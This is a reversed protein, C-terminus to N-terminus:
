TAPAVQAIDARAGHEDPSALGQLFATVFVHEIAMLMMLVMSSCCLYLVVIAVTTSAAGAHHFFRRATTNPPPESADAVTPELTATAFYPWLIFVCFAAAALAAALGILAYERILIWALLAGVSFLGLGSFAIRQGFHVGLAGVGVVILLLVAVVYWGAIETVSATRFWGVLRSAPHVRLIAAGGHYYESAFITLAAILNAHALHNAILQMSGGVLGRYSKLWLTAGVLKLLGTSPNGNKVQALRQDIARVKYFYRRIVPLDATDGYLVAHWLDRADLKMVWIMLYNWLWTVILFIAFAIAPNVETAATAQRAHPGDLLGLFSIVLFFVGVIELLGKVLITLPGFKDKEEKPMLRPLRTRSSWDSFVFILLGVTVGVCSWTGLGSAVGGHASHMILHVAAAYLLSVFITTAGLLSTEDQHSDSIM